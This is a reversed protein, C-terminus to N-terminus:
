LILQMDRIEIGPSRAKELERELKFFFAAKAAHFRPGRDEDKGSASLLELTQSYQLESSATVAASVDEPRVDLGLDPGDEGAKTLSSM